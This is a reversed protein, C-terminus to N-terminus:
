VNSSGVAPPAYRSQTEEAEDQVSLLFDDVDTEIKFSARMDLVRLGTVKPPAERGVWVVMVEHGRTKSEALYGVAGERLLGAVLVISAGEPVAHFGRELALKELPLFSLPHVFALAELINRLHIAGDGPPIVSMIGRGPRVGNGMFGVRFGLDVCRSAISAAGTVGAELVDYRYGHWATDVTASELMVVVDNSVSQDFTRVALQGQKASLKWDIRKMPDGPLYERVSKPRSPDDILTNRSLADGIPRASPLHFGDLPVIKPYVTIGISSRPDRRVSGFLGFLDGSRLETPGFSFFGRHTARLRHRFRVREYAALSTTEVIESGGAYARKRARDTELPLIGAPMFEITQVWPIPLPKRNELTMTVELEDDVFVHTDSPQVDYTVRELSLKSWLVGGGSVVFATAGLAVTLASGTGAGIGVVVIMVFMFIGGIVDPSRLDSTRRTGLTKLVPNVM